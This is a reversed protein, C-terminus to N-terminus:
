YKIMENDARSYNINIIGVSTPSYSTMNVVKQYLIM